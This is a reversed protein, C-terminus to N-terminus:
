NARAAASRMVKEIVARNGVVFETVREFASEPSASEFEEEALVVGDGQAIDLNWRWPADSEAKVTFVLDEGEMAGDGSFAVTGIFPYVESRHTNSTLRLRPAADQLQHGLQDFFRCLDSWLANSSAQDESV